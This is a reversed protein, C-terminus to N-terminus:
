PVPVYFDYVMLFSLVFHLDIDVGMKPMFLGLIDGRRKANCAASALRPPLAHGDRLATRMPIFGSRSLRLTAEAPIVDTTCPNVCTWAVSENWDGQGHGYPTERTRSQNGYTSNFSPANCLVWLSYLAVAQDTFPKM